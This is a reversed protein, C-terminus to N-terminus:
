EYTYGNKEIEKKEENLIYLHEISGRKFSIGVAFFFVTLIASTIILVWDKSTIGWPVAAIIELLTLLLMAIGFVYFVIPFFKATKLEDAIDKEIDAIDRFKSGCDLCTWVTTSKSTVTTKSKSGCGGCLLGFPGLLIYGCCGKGVSYGGGKTQSSYETNAVIQLNRSKCKPCCKKRQCSVSSEKQTVAQSANRCDECYESNDTIERGCKRCFM